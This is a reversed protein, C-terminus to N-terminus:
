ESPLLDTVIDSFETEAVLAARKGLQAQYRAERDTSRSALFLERSLQASNENIEEISPLEIEGSTGFLCVSHSIPAVVIEIRGSAASLLNRYITEGESRGFVGVDGLIFSHPAYSVSQWHLHSITKMRPEPAIAKTLANIHGTHAAGELDVKERFTNFLGSLIPRFDIEQMGKELSRILLVRQARSLYRMQDRWKPDRMEKRAAKKIRNKWKKRDSAPIAEGIQDFLDKAAEVFGQRINKTRIILHVVFERITPLATEPVHGQRLEEIVPAFRNENASMTKELTSDQPNGHFDRQQALNKINTEIPSDLSRRFM